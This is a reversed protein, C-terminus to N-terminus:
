GVCPGILGCGARTQLTNSAEISAVCLGKSDFRELMQDVCRMVRCLM